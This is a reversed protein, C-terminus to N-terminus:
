AGQGAADVDLAELSNVIRPGLTTIDGAGLTFVVDGPRILDSVATLASDLDRVHHVPSTVNRAVLGGDVGPEPKERAGFVDLVVVEDALSLAHGFDEAFIRTRSYLHPQFVAVLRGGEAEVIERAATLVAIVETPHHAYDDYVRVTGGSLATTGKLEFRRGVGGFGSLGALLGEVSVPVDSSVERAALLAALANLAMHEGPTAVHLEGHPEGDLALGARAGGADVVVGHLEGAVHLDTDAGGATRYGLIRVGADTARRAREAAGEDDLCVVLAGTSPIRALFTDFVQFYAEATGFHDLHDPEANTLIVVDPQYHVLSGDSEDAEAVFVPDAGGRANTGFQLVTGGVAFSPDAGASLMAAILMSTTSTKGHTGCVMISRGARALHGLVQSRTVVPIGAERAAVMEPNDAPIAAKSIVVIQPPADLARLVAADHGVRVVAGRAELARLDNSDRADSGSVAVGHDLLIRAVASMGAGGIGIMHVHTLTDPMATYPMATDPKDAAAGDGPLTSETM